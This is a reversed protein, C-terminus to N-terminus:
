PLIMRVVTILILVFMATFIIAAVVFGRISGSAFDREKNAKNQVGFSAQMVSLMIRWFPVKVPKEQQQGTDNDSNM